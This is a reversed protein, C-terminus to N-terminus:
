NAIRRVRVELGDSLHGKPSVAVTEDKKCAAALIIASSLTLAVVILTPRTDMIDVSAFPGGSPLGRAHARVVQPPERLVRGSKQPLTAVDTRRSGERSILEVSTRVVMAVIVGAGGLMGLTPM